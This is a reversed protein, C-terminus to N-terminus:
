FSFFGEPLGKSEDGAEIDLSPTFRVRREQINLGKRDIMSSGLPRPEINVVSIETVSDFSLSLLFLLRSRVDM